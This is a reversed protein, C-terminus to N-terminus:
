SSSHAWIRRFATSREDEATGTRVTGVVRTNKARQVLRADFDIEDGTLSNTGAARGQGRDATACV